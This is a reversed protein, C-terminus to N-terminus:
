VNQDLLQVIRFMESLLLNDGEIAYAAFVSVLVQCCIIYICAAQVHSGCILYMESLLFSKVYSASWAMVM